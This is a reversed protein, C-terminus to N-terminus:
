CDQYLFTNQLINETRLGRMSYRLSVYGKRASYDGSAAPDESKFMIAGQLALFEADTTRPTAGTARYRAVPRGSSFPLMTLYNEMIHKVVIALRLLMPIKELWAERGRGIWKPMLKVAEIPMQDDMVMEDVYKHFTMYPPIPPDSGLPVQYNAYNASEITGINCDPRGDYTRLEGPVVIERYERYGRAQSELFNRVRFRDKFEHADTPDFKATLGKYFRKELDSLIRKYVPWLVYTEADPILCETLGLQELLPFILMKNFQPFFMGFTLGDIWEALFTQYSPHPSLSRSFFSREVYGGKPERSGLYHTEMAGRITTPDALLSEQDVDETLDRWLAANYVISGTRDVEGPFPIIITPGGCPSHCTKRNKTHPKLADFAQDLPRSLALRAARLWETIEDRQANLDPGGNANRIKSTYRNKTSNKIRRATREDLGIFLAMYYARMPLSDDDKVACVRPPGGGSQFVILKMGHGATASKILPYMMVAGREVISITSVKKSEYEGNAKCISDGKNVVGDPAWMGLVGAPTLHYFHDNIVDVSSNMFASDVTKSIFENRADKVIREQISLKSHRMTGSSGGSIDADIAGKALRAKKAAKDYRLQLDPSLIWNELRDLVDRDDLFRPLLHYESDIFLASELRNESQYVGFLDKFTGGLNAALFRPFMPEMSSQIRTNPTNGLVRQYNWRIFLNLEPITLNHCARQRLDLGTSRKKIFVYDGPIPSVDRIAMITSDEISSDTLDTFTSMTAALRASVQKTPQFDRSPDM